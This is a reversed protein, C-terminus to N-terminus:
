PRSLSIFNDFNTNWIPLDLLDVNGDGNLDSIFYGGSSFNDYETQWIPFDILDINGDKPTNFDGSYITPIGGVLGLNGGFAQAATGFNYSTFTSTFPVAAASWTELLNRGIVVIYYSNGTAALPYSCTITGNTNLIGKFSHAIGFPSVSNRLQVTITDCQTTTAGAIGSNQLVPRMSAGNMYGQIFTQSLNLFANEFGIAANTGGLTFFSNLSGTLGASTVVDLGASATVTTSTFSTWPGLTAARILRINAMDTITNNSRKTFNSANVSVSYSTPQVYANLFSNNLRWYGTNTTQQISIGQSTFPTGVLSPDGDFYSAELYGATAGAVPTFNLLRNSTSTGLPYPRTTSANSLWRRYKGVIYNNGTPTFTGSLTPQANVGHILVGSGDSKMWLKGATLTLTGSITFSSFDLIVGGASTNNITLTTMNATVPNPSLANNFSGTGSITQTINAPTQSGSLFNGMTLANTGAVTLTGNTGVNINGGFVMTSEVVLNGSLINTNGNVGMTGQNTVIRNTGNNADVLLSGLSLSGSFSPQIRFGSAFGSPDNSVGDGLSVTHSSPLNVNKGTGGFYAISFGGNGQPPDVITIKGGTASFTGNLYLSNSLGVSFLNNIGSSTLADGNNNGDIRIEGGTQNFNAGDLIRLIGNVQLIGNSINLSGGSNVNNFSLNGSCGSTLTGSSITLTGSISLGSCSNTGTSTIVHNPQILVSACSANPVINGVWTSSSEWPGSSASVIPFDQANIGFYYTGVLESNALVRQACPTSTGLQHTGPASSLKVLRSNGNGPNTPFISPAIVALEFSTSQVGATDVLWSDNSILGVLNGNDNISAASTGAAENYTVIVKGGNRTGGPVPVRQFFLSRNQNLSNIFPFRGPMGGNTLVPDVGPDIVTGTETPGYWKSVKSGTGFGGNTITLSFNGSPSTISSGFIFENGNTFLRGNTFSIFSTTGTNAGSLCANASFTVGGTSINDIQLQAWNVVPSTLANQFSGLGSVTQPNTASTRTANLYAGFRFNGSTIITGNNFINGAISVTAFPNFLGQNIILDGNIGVESASVPNLSAFRNPTPSPGASPIEIVLTGLSINAVPSTNKRIEVGYSSIPNGGPDTSSEDGLKLTHTAPLNIHTFPIIRVAFFNGVPAVVPDVIQLIGGLLQLNSASAPTMEFIHGPASTAVNGNDNGDILIIGGTQILTSTPSTSTFFGNIQLTGASINVVGNGLVLVKNNRTTGCGIVLSSGQITLNGGNAVTLAGAECPNSSVTVTHGTTIEAAVCLSPVIGGVWTSPSEWAGSGASLIPFDITNIGLFLPGGILEATTLLRQGGPTNTGAQHTGVISSSRVIRVNPNIPTAAFISPATIALKYSAAVSSGLNFSWNDNARTSVTYSGDMLGFATSGSVENFTVTIFGSASPTVRELYAVRQAGNATLFPFSLNGISPDTSPLVQAGVFTGNVSRSYSSGSTFGGNTYSIVAVNGTTGHSFTNGNTSIRGNTFVLTSSVTSSNGASTLVNPNQFVIGGSSINDFSLSAFNASSATPPITNFFQGSGAILQTVTSSVGLNNFFDGFRLAVATSRLIGNNVLDGGIHGAAIRCEGSIVFLGGRLASNGLQVFRNPNAGINTVLDVEVKGFAFFGSQVLPNISLGSTNGGVETSVGNGLRLTHSPSCNIHVGTGRYAFANSSTSSSRSPDVITIRGGTFSFKAANAANSINNGLGGTTFGIGFIPNTGSVGGVSTAPVGSNGDIFMEGSSHTFGSGDTFYASGNLIINGGNLILTGANTVNLETNNAGPIEITLTNNSVTLTGANITLQRVSASGANLNMISGNQIVFNDASSVDTPATGTGDPNLGWSSPSTFDTAGSKSFYTSQSYSTSGILAFYFLSFILVFHSLVRKM